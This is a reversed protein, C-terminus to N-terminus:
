QTLMVFGKETRDSIYNRGFDDSLTRHPYNRTQPRSRDPLCKGLCFLRWPHLSIGRLSKMDVKEGSKRM